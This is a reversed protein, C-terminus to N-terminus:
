TARSDDGDPDRSQNNEPPKTPIGAENSETESTSKRPHRSQRPLNLDQIKRGLQDDQAILDVDKDLGLVRLARMYTGFAINPDGKELRNLTDRSVGM